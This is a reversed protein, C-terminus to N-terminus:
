NCVEFYSSYVNVASWKASFTIGGLELYCEFVRAILYLYKDSINSM